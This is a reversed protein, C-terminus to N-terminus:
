NFKRCLVAAIEIPSACNWYFNFTDLVGTSEDFVAAVSTSAGLVTTYDAPYMMMNRFDDRLHPYERHTATPVKVIQTYTVSSAGTFPARMIDVLFFHLSAETAPITVQGAAAGRATDTTGRRSVGNGASALFYNHQTGATHTWNITGGAAGTLGIFNDTSGSGVMNTTGSCVGAYYNVTNINASDNIRALIGLTVRNWKGGWKFTRGIQGSTLSLRKQTISNLGSRSVITATGSTVWNGSWGRGANFGSSQSVTYDEFYDIAIGDGTGLVESFLSATSSGAAGTAGTAGTDGVDGPDGAPGAIGDPGQPGANGAAGASGAAGAAGQPGQAGQDGDIGPLGQAGPQGWNDSLVKVSEFTGDGVAKAALIYSTGLPGTDM